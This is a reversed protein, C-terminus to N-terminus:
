RRAPSESRYFDAHPQTRCRTSDAHFPECRTVSVSDGTRPFGQLCFFGTSPPPSHARSFLDSFYRDYKFLPYVSQRAVIMKRPRQSRPFFSSRRAPPTVCSHEAKQGRPTITHGAKRPVGRCWKPRPKACSHSDRVRYDDCSFLTLAPPLLDFDCIRRPPLLRLHLFLRGSM